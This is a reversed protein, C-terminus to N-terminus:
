AEVARDAARCINVWVWLEGATAAAGDGGGKQLDVILAIETNVPYPGVSDDGTVYADGAEVTAAATFQTPADTVGVSGTPAATPGAVDTKRELLVPPLLVDGVRLTTLEIQIDDFGEAFDEKTLIFLDTFQGREEFKLKSHKM